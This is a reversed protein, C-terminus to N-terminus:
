ASASAGARLSGTIKVLDPDFVFCIIERDGAPWSDSSPSLWGVEYPSDFYSEGMYDDFREVCKEESVSNVTDVGPFTEGSMTELAIVENDHAEDCGRIPVDTVSEFAPPDDFCTGVELELVSPTCAALVFALAFVAAFRHDRM